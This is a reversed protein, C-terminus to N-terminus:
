RLIHKSNNKVPMHQFTVSDFTVLGKRFYEEDEEYWQDSIFDSFLLQFERRASKESDAGHTCNRTDTLGHRGRISEPAEYFAKLVKTPGIMARWEEIANERALIHAWIPGSTMFNILRGQFFKGDHEKYFEAAQLKTLHMLKSKVFYFKNALILERIEQVIYPHKVVDPKLIALTLQLTKAILM